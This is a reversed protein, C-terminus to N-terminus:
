VLPHVTTAIEDDINSNATSNEHDQNNDQNYSILNDSFLNDSNLHDSNLLNYSMNSTLSISM